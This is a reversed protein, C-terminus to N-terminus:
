IHPNDRVPFHKHHKANIPLHWHAVSEMQVAEAGSSFELKVGGPGPVIFRGSAYEILVDLKKLDQIGLFCPVM